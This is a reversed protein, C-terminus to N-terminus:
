REHRLHAQAFTKFLFSESAKKLENTVVNLPMDSESSGENSSLWSSQM